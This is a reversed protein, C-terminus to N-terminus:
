GKGVPVQRLSVGPVTGGARYAATKRTSRAHFCGAITGAMLFTLPLLEANPILDAVNVALLLALGGLVINAETVGGRVAGLARFVSVTFLGFLALYGFWGFMGYEIIWFGDTVSIDEGSTPDYVRNRAWTGWGFFPRENAKALLMDENHVRTAFSSSRASSVQNAADVVRHVPVIDYSRLLPYTCVVLLIGCAIRLWTRPKTILVLPVMIAAYVMSGMSKCLVLVVALYGTVVGAPVTLVRWKARTAVAAAILAMSAFLAVELGHGLFVVPRFGGDRYQQIFSHPFFGYVWSHFQPSFRVEFLMPLSYFLAATPLAKLLMARGQESSLFRMGIFFPMLTIVNRAALKLSDLPYFGSISLKGVNLEYSNNLSTFIPSIVFMFALCYILLSGRPRPSQSGKMWCLLFTAIAPISFKDLPPLHGVDVSTASPLLLYGALLSWIAAAEVPLAVFLVICVAPWAFM